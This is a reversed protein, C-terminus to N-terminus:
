QRPDFNGATVTPMQEWWVQEWRAWKSHGDLYAVNFGGLHAEHGLDKPRQIDQQWTGHYGGTPNNNADRGIWARSHFYAGTWNKGSDALLIVQAPKDIGAIHSYPNDASNPTTASPLTPVLFLNLAYSTKRVATSPAIPVTWNESTDSPCRLLQTSKLYPQM